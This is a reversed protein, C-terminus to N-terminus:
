RFCNECCGGGIFSCVEALGRLVACAVEEVLMKAVEYRYKLMASTGM